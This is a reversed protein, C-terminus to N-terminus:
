KRDHRVQKLMEKNANPSASIFEAHGLFLNGRNKQSFDRLLPLQNETMTPLIKSKTHCDKKMQWQPSTGYDGIFLSSIGFYIRCSMFVSQWSKEAFFRAIVTTSKGDKNAFDKIKRPLRNRDNRAQEAIEWFYRLSASIFKAHCLISQWSFM